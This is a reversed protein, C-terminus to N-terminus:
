EYRLAEIPNLNAAKRAPYWGFFIGIIAAFFFALGVSEPSIVVPWKQISSVFRSTLVGLIVGILGGALSLTVAEILFQTLVDGGRAGVAMRIGIERTRETVSVLMINMIGIGGVVLSIAAVSALLLTMTQTTADATSAIETQTRVTFDNAEWSRLNHKIRLFQTIEEVATNVAPSSIASAFLMNAYITGALKQQVTSFPAIVIDDNDQGMSSQGKSALVGVVRFPLNRIQVTAGLPISGPGFLNDAVTQGLVCVKAATREDTSTFYDGSKVPWNRIQEFDPYVGMISTRWNQTGAIIQTVVRVVPTVYKVAPCQAAIAVADSETLRSTEGAQFRVNGQTSAFPFVIVVNTGLGAIQEKVANSAGQGIALMAIVAAVGIIIGLMTLFSRLKNRGLSRYSVRLVNLVNM